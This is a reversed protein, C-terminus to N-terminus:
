HSGKGHIEKSLSFCYKRLIPDPVPIKVRASRACGAQDDDMPDRMATSGLEPIRACNELVIESSRTLTRSPANSRVPTGSADASTMKM